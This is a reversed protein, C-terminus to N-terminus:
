LAGNYDSTTNGISLTVSTTIANKVNIWSLERKIM